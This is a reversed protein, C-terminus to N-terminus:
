ACCSAGPRNPMDQLAQLDTNYPSEEQVGEVTSALVSSTWQPLAPNIAYYIWTGARRDIVLGSERLLALHRSLMPQSIGLAHTLECVCLEGQCQLLLLSRLRVDHSLATFFTDANITMALIYPIEYINDVM